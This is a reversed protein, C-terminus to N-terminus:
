INFSSEKARNLEISKAGGVDALSRATPRGSLGLPPNRGYEGATGAWTGNAEENSSIAAM